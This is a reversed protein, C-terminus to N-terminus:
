LTRRLSRERADTVSAILERIVPGAAAMGADVLVLGDETEFVVVNVLSLYIMWTHPAVAEIRSLRRADAIGEESAKFFDTAIARSFSGGFAGGRQIAPVIGPFEVFLL